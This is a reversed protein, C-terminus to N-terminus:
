GDYHGAIYMGTALHLIGFGLALCGLAFVPAPLFVALVGLGALIRGMWRVPPISFTAAGLLALGDLLLWFGPILRWDGGRLLAATVLAAAAWGPAMCRLARRSPGTALPLRWRRSKRALSAWAIPAALALAAGWALFFAREYGPGAFGGGRAAWACAASAGLGVLGTLAVGWGSIATFTGAEELTQRIYDLDARARAVPEVAARAGWPDRWTRRRPRSRADSAARPRLTM